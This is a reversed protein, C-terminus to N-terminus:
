FGLTSKIISYTVVKHSGINMGRLVIRNQNKSLEEVLKDISKVDVGNVERIIFGQRVGAKDAYSDRVVSQVTIEDEPNDMNYRVEMGIEKLPADSRIIVRRESAVPSMLEVEIKMKNQGRRFAINVKDGPQYLAIQEQLAPYSLVTIGNISYIIDGRQLGARAASTGDTVRNIYVGSGPEEGTRKNIRDSIDEIGIGLIARQVKGYNILDRTMKRVINSPIAFSYGEFNGSRTFIATNIGILEGAVNILAGGSNGENFVADTQIFSELPYDGKLLDITRGKGSIIGSTVTSNLRYPNGIAIVWQGIQVSDSNAFSLYPCDERDIKLVAMDSSEDSGILSATYKKGDNIMVEYLSGASIVHFNTVIYGDSTILVGSGSSVISGFDWIPLTKNRVTIRVVAPIGIKAAKIFNNGSSAPIVGNVFASWGNETSFSVKHENPLVWRMIVTSIIVAILILLIDRKKIM